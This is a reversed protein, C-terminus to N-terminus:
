AAASRAKYNLEVVIGNPDTLFLQQLGVSPVERQTFAVELSRLHAVMADIGDAYFAVHDLAGSGTSTAARDGLYDQLGSPALPDIGVIHVAANAFDGLEGTYMWVGPFPFDPRPGVTLGLVTEYFYRSADLDATRISYHNLTLAM